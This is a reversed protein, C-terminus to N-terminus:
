RSHVVLLNACIQLAPRASLWRGMAVYNDTQIRHNM